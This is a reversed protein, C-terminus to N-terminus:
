MGGDRAAKAERIKEELRAADRLRDRLISACQEATDAAWRAANEEPLGADLDTPQIRSPDLTGAALRECDLLADLLRGRAWTVSDVAAPSEPWTVAEAEALIARAREEAPLPLYPPAVISM